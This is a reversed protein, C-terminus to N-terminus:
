NNQQTADVSPLKHLSLNQYGCNPIPQTNDWAITTQPNLMKFDNDATVPLHNGFDGCLPQLRNYPTSKTEIKDSLVLSSVVNGYGRRYTFRRATHPMDLVSAYPGINKLDM